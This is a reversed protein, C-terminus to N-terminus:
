PTCGSSSPPEASWARDTKRITTVSLDVADPPTAAPWFHFLYDEVPKTVELSTATDRGRAHARVRYRGASVEDMAAVAHGDLSRVAVPARATLTSEEVVEWDGDDDAPESTFVRVSM